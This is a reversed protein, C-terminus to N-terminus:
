GASLKLEEDTADRVPEGPAFVLGKEFKLTNLGGLAYRAVQATVLISGHAPRDLQRFITLLAERGSIVIDRCQMEPMAGAAAADLSSRMADLQQQVEHLAGLRFAEALKM